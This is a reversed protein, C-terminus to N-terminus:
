NLWGVNSILILDSNAPTLRKATYAGLGPLDYPAKVLANGSPALHRHRWLTDALDFVIKLRDAPFRFAVHLHINTDPNEVVGIYPSRCGADFCWKHGFVRKDLREHFEDLTARAADISLPAPWQTSRNTISGREIAPFHRIVPGAAGPDHHETPTGAGNGRHHHGFGTQRNFVLTIWANPQFDEFMQQFAQRFKAVEPPPTYRTPDHTSPRAAPQKSASESSTWM